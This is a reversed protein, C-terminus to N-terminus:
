ITILGTETPKSLVHVDLGLWYAPAHRLKTLKYPLGGDVKRQVADLPSGNIGRNAM